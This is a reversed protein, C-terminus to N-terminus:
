AQILDTQLMPLGSMCLLDRTGSPGGKEPRLGFGLPGFLPDIIMSLVALLALEGFSDNGLNLIRPKGSEGHKRPRAAFAPLALTLSDCNLVSPAAVLAPSGNAPEFVSALMHDALARRDRLRKAGLM